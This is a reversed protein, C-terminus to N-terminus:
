VKLGELAWYEGHRVVCMYQTDLLLIKLHAPSKEWARVVNERTYKYALNESFLRGRRYFRPASARFGEHSFDRAIEEARRKAYECTDPSSIVPAAIDYRARLANIQRLVYEEETEPIAASVFVPSFLILISVFLKM